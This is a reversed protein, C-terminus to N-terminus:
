LRAHASITFVHCQVLNIRGVNNTQNIAPELLMRSHRNGYCDHLLPYHGSAHGRSCSSIYEQVPKQARLFLLLINVIM